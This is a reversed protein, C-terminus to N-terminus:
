RGVWLVGSILYKNMNYKEREIVTSGQVVHTQVARAWKYASKKFLYMIYHQM